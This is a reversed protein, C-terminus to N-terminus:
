PQVAKRAELMADAYEYSIAVIAHTPPMDSLDGHESVFAADKGNRFARQRDRIRDYANSACMGQLAQGAFYDRLSMGSVWGTDTVSEGGGYTDIRIEKTGIPFAPGGDNTNSV